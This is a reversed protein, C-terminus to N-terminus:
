ATGPCVITLTETESSYVAYLVYIQTNEMKYMTVGDEPFTWKGWVADFAKEHYSGSLWKEMELRFAERNEQALENWEGEPCEATHVTLYRTTGGHPGRLDSVSELVEGSFSTGWEANINELVKKSNEPLKVCGSFVAATAFILVAALISALWKRKM